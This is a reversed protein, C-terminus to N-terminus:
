ATISRAYKRLLCKKGSDQGPCMPEQLQNKPANAFNPLAVVLKTMDTRRDTWRDAHFFEAVAPRAIM